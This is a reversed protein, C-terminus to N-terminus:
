LEKKNKYLLMENTSRQGQTLYERRSACQQDSKLPFDTPSSAM